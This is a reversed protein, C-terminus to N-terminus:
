PRKHQMFPPEGIDFFAWTAMDMVRNATENAIMEDTGALDREIQKQYRSKRNRRRIKNNQTQFYRQGYKILEPNKYWRWITTRHVGIEASIQNISHGLYLLHATQKQKETLVGPGGKMCSHEHIIYIHCLFDATVFIYNAGGTLVDPPYGLPANDAM